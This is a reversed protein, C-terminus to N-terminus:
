EDCTAGTETTALTTPAGLRVLVPRLVMDGLKYGPRMSELVVSRERDAPCEMCEMRSPDFPEGVSVDFEGCGLRRLCTALTELVGELQAIMGADQKADLHAHMTRLRDIMPILENFVGTNAVHKRDGIMDRRLTDIERSIMRNGQSLGEQLREMHAQLARQTEEISQLRRMLVLMDEAIEEVHEAVDGAKPDLTSEANASVAEAFESRDFKSLKDILDEGFSNLAGVPDQADMDPESSQDAPVAAYQPPSDPGADAPEEGPMDDKHQPTKM